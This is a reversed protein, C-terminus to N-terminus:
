KIIVKRGEIVYIGRSLGETTTAQRRVLVGDLTYIDAAHRGAILESISTPGTM